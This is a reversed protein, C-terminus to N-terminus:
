GADLGEAGAYRWKWGSGESPEVFGWCPFRGHTFMAPSGVAAALIRARSAALGSVDRGAFASWNVHAMEIPFHVLDALYWLTSGASRVRVVPHGATEGPAHLWRSEARWM